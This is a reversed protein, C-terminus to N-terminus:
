RALLGLLQTWKVCTHATRIFPVYEDHSLWRLKMPKKKKKEKKSQKAKSQNTMQQNKAM